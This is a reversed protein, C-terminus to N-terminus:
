YENVIYSFKDTINDNKFSVLHITVPHLLPPKINQIKYILYYKNWLAHPIDTKNVIITFPVNYKRYKQIYMNVSNYMIMYSTVNVVIIINTPNIDKKYASSFFWQGGVEIIKVRKNITYFEYFFTPYYKESFPEGKIKQIFTTKGSGEDGVLLIRENPTILYQLCHIQLTTPLKKILECM